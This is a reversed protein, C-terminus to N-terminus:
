KPIMHVTMHHMQARRDEIVWGNLVDRRQEDLPTSDACPQKGKLIAVLTGNASAGISCGQCRDPLHTASVRDRGM